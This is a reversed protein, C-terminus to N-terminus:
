ASDLTIGAGHAALLVTGPGAGIDLLSHVPGCRPKMESLVKYVVAYTAPLRAILYALRLADPGLSSVAAKEKYLSTLSQRRAGMATLSIGCVLSEIKSVLEFPLHM